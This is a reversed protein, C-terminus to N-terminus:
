EGPVRAVRHRIQHWRDSRACLRSLKADLRCEGRSCRASRWRVCVARARVGRAGGGACTASRVQARM